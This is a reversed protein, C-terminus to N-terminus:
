NGRRRLRPQDLALEILWKEFAQRSKGTRRLLTTYLSAREAAPVIETMLEPLWDHQRLRRRAHRLLKSPEPLDGFEAALAILWIADPRLPRRLGDTIGQAVNKLARLAAAEGLARRAALWELVFPHTSHGRRFARRAAKDFEEAALRSRELDAALTKSNRDWPVGAARGVQDAADALDDLVGDSASAASDALLAAQRREHAGRAIDARRSPDFILEKPETPTEPGFRRPSKTAV